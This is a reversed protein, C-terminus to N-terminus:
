NWEINEFDFPAVVPADGEKLEYHVRRREIAGDGNLFIAGDPNNTTFIKKTGSPINAVQYRCHISRPQECDVIHIQAERPMHTFSMDDFIIGDHEGEDYKLLDDMHSVFLAKPLIARAFCTKGCGAKGWLIVSKRGLVLNILDLPWNPNFDKLEFSSTAKQTLNPSTMDYCRKIGQNYKIMMEPHLSWLQHITSGEAISAIVGQLDSRAGQKMPEGLELFTGEKSCYAKNEAPTGNALALYPHSKWHAELKPLLKSM